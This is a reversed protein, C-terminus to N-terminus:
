VCLLPLPLAPPFTHRSLRPSEEHREPFVSQFKKLASHREHASASTNSCRPAGGGTRATQVRYRREVPYQMGSKERASAPAVTLGGLSTQVLAVQRGSGDHSPGLVLADATQARVTTTAEKATAAPAALTQWQRAGHVNEKRFLYVCRYRRPLVARVAATSLGPPVQTATHAPRCRKAVRPHVMVM